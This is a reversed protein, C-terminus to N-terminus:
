CRHTRAPVFCEWKSSKKSALCLSVFMGVVDLGHRVFRRGRWQWWQWCHCSAQADAVVFVGDRRPCCRWWSSPSSAQVDIDVVGNHDQLGWAGKWHTLARLPISNASCNTHSNTVDLWGLLVMNSKVHDLIMYFRILQKLNSYPSLNANCNTHHSNTDYCWGYFFNCQWFWTFEFICFIM